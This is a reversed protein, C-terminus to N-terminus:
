RPHDKKERRVFGATGDVLLFEGDQFISTVRDVALVAPIGFERAVIAAHSLPGGIETVVAAAVGFLPTWAPATSPAVLIDGKKVKGFESQNRVICVPGRALGHSAGIGRLAEGENAPRSALKIQPPISGSAVFWNEGESWATEVKSFGRRRRMVRQRLDAIEGRIAQSLEKNRLYFVDESDALTNSRHLLNGLAQLAKRMQTVAKGYPVFGDERAILYNRARRLSGNFLRAMPASLRDCIEKHAAAFEVKYRSEVSETAPAPFDVSLAKVLGLVAEPNERWTPVSPVSVMGRSPNHGWVALFCDLAALFESSKIGHRSASQALRDMDRNMLATSYPVALFVKQNLIAARTKGVARRIWFKTLSEHLIGCLFIKQFRAPMYRDLISFIKHIHDVLLTADLTNLDVNSLDEVERLFEKSMPSWADIPDDFLARFFRHPLKWLLKFSPGPLKPRFAIRGDPFEEIFADASFSRFGIDAALSLMGDIANRLIFFDMPKLPEPFHESLDTAMKKALIKGGFRLPRETESLSTTIPRSQLLYLKGQSFAWEIDQPFNYHSMVKRGLNALTTLERDSLCYRIRDEQSTPRIKTGLETSVVKKEKTGLQRTQIKGSTRLVFIDPTVLGSVVSEGLGYSATVMFESRSSNMPNATFLVGAVDAEVMRQVVVALNVSFHDYGMRMRYHVARSEWLSAWCKRVATLVMDKGRINLFTEQQGAFSADPLDEATASSRVAVSYLNGHEQDPRADGAQALQAGAIRLYGGTIAEAIDDPLSASLIWSQIDASAQEIKALDDSAIKLRDRIQSALGGTQTIERYADAAIVFGPPVPFGANFMEGLNAGKGGAIGVSNKNLESFDYIWQSEM